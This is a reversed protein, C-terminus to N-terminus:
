KKTYILYNEDVVGNEVANIFATFFYLSDLKVISFLLADQQYVRRNLNNLVGINSYTDGMYAKLLLLNGAVIKSNYHEPNLDLAEKMTLSMDYYLMNCLKKEEM